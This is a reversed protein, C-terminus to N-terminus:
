VKYLVHFFVRFCQQLLQFDTFYDKSELRNIKKQLASNIYAPNEEYYNFLNYNTKMVHFIFNCFRQILRWSRYYTPNNKIQRYDVGLHSLIIIHTSENKDLWQFMEDRSLPFDGKRKPLNKVRYASPIAKWSGDCQGRFVFRERQFVELQTIFNKLESLTEIRELNLPM